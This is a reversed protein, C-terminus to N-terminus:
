HEWGELPLSSIKFDILNKYFSLNFVCKDFEDILILDIKLEHLIVVFVLFLLAQLKQEKVLECWTFHASM